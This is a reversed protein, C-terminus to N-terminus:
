GVLDVTNEGSGLEARKAEYVTTDNKIFVLKYHSHAELTNITGRTSDIWGSMLSNTNDPALSTGYNVAISSPVTSATYIDLEIYTGKDTLTYYSEDDVSIFQFKATLTMSYPSTSAATVTYTQGATGKLTHTESKESEGATLTKDGGTSLSGGSGATISVTYKIDCEAYNVGDNNAVTFKVSDAYVKYTPVTDGSRVEKLYDSTFYFENPTIGANTKKESVYKAYSGGICGFVFLVFLCLLTVTGLSIDKRLIIRRKM